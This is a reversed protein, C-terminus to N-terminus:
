GFVETNRVPCHKFKFLSLKFIEYFKKKLILQREKALSKKQSPSFLKCWLRRLYPRWRWCEVNVDRTYECWTVNSSILKILHTSVNTKKCIICRQYFVLLQYCLFPEEVVLDNEGVVKRNVIPGSSPKYRYVWLFSFAHYYWPFM